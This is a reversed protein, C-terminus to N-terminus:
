QDWTFVYGLVPFAFSTLFIGVCLFAGEKDTSQMAMPAVLFVLIVLCVTNSFGQVV